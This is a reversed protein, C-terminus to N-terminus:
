CKLNKNKEQIIEYIEIYYKIVDKLIKKITRKTDTEYHIIVKKELLHPVNYGAFKINKHKQLGTTLLNGMTSDEDMLLIEGNFKTEDIELSELIKPIKKLKEIINIIGVEIIRKETLQGRSEITFIFENPKIPDYEYCCISPASYISNDHECGLTSIVSFIITQGPQLKVLPIPIKYPSDIRKEGYYFKAHETTVTIINKETSTYEVYMTLQKLSSSNLNTIDEDVNLDVNDNDIDINYEEDITQLEKKEQVHTNIKNEIGWIPINQIRLKLYNNNFITTNKKFNFETFAYIPIDWLITRRLTNIIIHDISEGKIKLELRTNGYESDWNHIKYDINDINNM